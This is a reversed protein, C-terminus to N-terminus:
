SFASKVDARNLVILGWIGFPIGLMCCYHCPLLAIICATMAYGFSELNKMKSAGLFVIGGFCIGVFSAVSWSYKGMQYGVSAGPQAILRPDPPPQNMAVAIFLVMLIVNIIMATIGFIMLAIAPGAVAERARRRRSRRRYVKEDEYEDEATSDEYSDELDEEDERGRAPRRRVRPQEGERGEEEDPPPAPRKRAVVEESESSPSGRGSSEDEFSGAGTMEATFVTNCSPCKVRKGFLSDPINLVRNCNPCNITKPM